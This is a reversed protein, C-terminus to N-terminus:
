DVQVICCADTMDPLSIVRPSNPDINGSEDCYAMEFSQDPLERVFKLYKDEYQCIEDTIWKTDSDRVVLKGSHTM